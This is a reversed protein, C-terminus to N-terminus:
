RSLHVRCDASAAPRGGLTGDPALELEFNLYRQDNSTEGEAVLVARVPLETGTSIIALRAPLARDGTVGFAGFAGGTVDLTGELSGGVLSRFESSFAFSQADCTVQGSWKGKLAGVAERRKDGVELSLQALYAENDLITERSAILAKQAALTEEAEATMRAFAERRAAFGMELEAVQGEQEAALEARKQANVRWLASLAIAYNKQITDLEAQNSSRMAGLNTELEARLAAQREAAETRLAELRGALIAKEAAVQAEAEDAFARMAELLQQNGLNTVAAQHEPSGILLTPRAFLDIPQGLADVPNEIVVPGSWEGMSFALDMTGYLTRRTGGPVARIVLDFPGLTDDTALFLEGRIATDAEFRLAYTPKLPDDSAKAAVTSFEGVMWYPPLIATLMAKLRDPGPAEQAAAPGALLCSLAAALALIRKM